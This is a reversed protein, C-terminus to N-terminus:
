KTKSWTRPDTTPLLTAHARVNTRPRPCLTPVDSVADSTIDSVCGSRARRPMRQAPATDGEREGRRHFPGASIAPDKRMGIRSHPAPYRSGDDTAPARTTTAGCGTALIPELAEDPLNGLQIRRAYVRSLRDLWSRADLEYLIPRGTSIMRPPPRM